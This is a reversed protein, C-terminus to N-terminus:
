VDGESSLQSEVTKIIKSVEDDTLIKYVVQRAATLLWFSWVCVIILKYM